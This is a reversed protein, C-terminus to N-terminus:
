FVPVRDVCLGIAIQHAGRLSLGALGIFEACGPTQGPSRSSRARGWTGAGPLDSELCSGLGDVSRAFGRPLSPTRRRHRFENHDIGVRRDRSRQIRSSAGGNWFHEPSVNTGPLAERQIFDHLVKAVSLSIIKIPDSMNPQGRSKPARTKEDPM